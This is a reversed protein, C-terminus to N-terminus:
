VARSGHGCSAWDYIIFISVQKLLRLFIQWLLELINDVTIVSPPVLVKSIPRKRLGHLFYTRENIKKVIYM